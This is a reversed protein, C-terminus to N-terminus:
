ELSGMEPTFEALEVREYLDNQYFPSQKLYDDADEFSEARLFVLYGRRQGSKDRLLGFLSIRGAAQAIHENWENRLAIMQKDSGSKLIGAVLYQM